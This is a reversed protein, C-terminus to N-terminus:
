TRHCIYGAGNGVQFKASCVGFESLRKQLAIGDVYRLHTPDAGLDQPVIAILTGRPRVVRAAELLALDYDFVHELVHSLITADFSAARFPLDEAFGTMFEVEHVMQDRSRQQAYDVCVQLMDLGVVSCGKRALEMSFYGDLCGVDLVRGYSHECLFDLRELVDKNNEEALVHLPKYRHAMARALELTLTALEEKSSAAQLTERWTELRTIGCM